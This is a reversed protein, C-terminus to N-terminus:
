TPELKSEADQKAETEDPTLDYKEYTAKRIREEVHDLLDFNIEAYVHVRDEANRARFKIIERDLSWYDPAPFVYKKGTKEAVEDCVTKSANRYYICRFENRWEERAYQALYKFNYDGEFEFAPIRNRIAERIDGRIKQRYSMQKESLTEPVAEVAKISM